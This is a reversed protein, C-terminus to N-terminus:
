HTVGSATARGAAGGLRIMAQELLGQEQRSLRAHIARYQSPSQLVETLASQVRTAGADRLFEMVPGVGPVVRGFGQTALRGLLGMQSATHSGGGSGYKLRQASRALDDNVAALAAMHEPMLVDAAKAKRFGTASRTTTDLSKIQQGLKSASLVPLQTLPDEISGTARQLLLQGTQMRNIPRSMAHFTSNAQGYEPSAKAMVRDLQDRVAMLAKSGQMAAGHGGGYKGSLMDGITLRINALTQGSNGKPSSVLNKITTLGHQVAPRGDELAILRDIQSVLRSTDVGTVKRGAAYLPDTVATRAAIADNLQAEDGAFRRIADVRAANNASDREVWGSSRAGRSHTELRAVGPDLSEEFLSRTVGPIASPNPTLLANPNSAEKTIIDYARRQPGTSGLFNFVSKGARATAGVARPVAAGAAGFGAGLATNTARDTGSTAPQLYGSMFGLLGNGRVTKPTMAAAASELMPAYRVLQPVRSATKLVAGPGLMQVLSGGILGARGAWTSNLAADQERRDAEQQRQETVSRYVPLGVNRGVWDAARNAGAARLGIDLLALSNSASETAGQKIGPIATAFSEGAGALTRAATQPIPVRTDWTGFPTAIELTPNRFNVADRRLAEQERAAAMPDVPTGGFRSRQPPLGDFGGSSAAYKTWPEAVVEYGKWPEGVPVGGFKSGSQDWQVEEPDIQRQRHGSPILDDFAGTTPTDWQVEAPDIVPDGDWPNAGPASPVNSAARQAQIQRALRRADQVNGAADARRLADILQGEPYEQAPGNSQHYQQLAREMTVRDTDAPFEAISRDPLEVEIPRADAHHYNQQAYQLVQAESVGEPAEVEYKRGNPATVVYTAM